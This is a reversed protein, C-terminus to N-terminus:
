AIDKRAWKAAVRLAEDRSIGPAQEQIERAYRVEANRLARERDDMTRRYNPNRGSYSVDSM